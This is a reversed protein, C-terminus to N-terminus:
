AGWGLRRRAWGELTHWDVDPHLRRLAPVDAHPAAAAVRLENSRAADPMSTVQFGRGAARAMVAAMEIATLEDSAIVIRRGAFEDLQQLVIRVYRVADDLAILQLAHGDLEALPLVGRRLCGAFPETLLQEMFWAPCLVTSRLGSAQLFREVEHRSDFRPVGTRVHAAPYSSYIFHRVGARVAADVLQLSTETYHPPEVREYAGACVIAIGDLAERLATADLAPCWALLAGRRRLREAAPHSLDEVLARVRYGSQLLSHAVAAGYVTTSEAVLVEETSM